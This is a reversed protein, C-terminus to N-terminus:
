YKRKTSEEMIKAVQKHADSSGNYALNFISQYIKAKSRLKGIRIIEDIEECDESIGVIEKLEDKSFKFVGAFAELEKKQEDTM